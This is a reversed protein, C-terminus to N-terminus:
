GSYGDRQLTIRGPPHQWRARLGAPARPSPDPIAEGTTLSKKDPHFYRAHAPYHGAGGLTGGYRIGAGAERNGVGAVALIGQTKAAPFTIINIVGNVGNAGWLTAAPGSIVEM